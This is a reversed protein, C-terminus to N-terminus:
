SKWLSKSMLCHVMKEEGSPPAIRCDMAVSALGYSDLRSLKRKEAILDIMNLSAIDMAKNLDASRGVTVYEKDTEAAPLARPAEASESKPIMCFTGKVGDVVESIPCDWIRLMMTEAESPSKKFIDVILKTTEAKLIEIAKNLDQDYGVAIWHTPTEVRPWPLKQGKILDITLNLERFATEIATINVEGNGQAAHSDGSWLLGEKVFVPIYLTTGETMERLDMNGAFPGPPGSSFKGPEARAVGITGPFPRLPVFIGPLFEVTRKDWDLYVFRLSGQPFEKPFQGGIGPLNLNVGYSRPVIKNIKIKLVDGPEAGEISIPGTITHPTGGKPVVEAGLKSLDDITVGPVLRDRYLMATEMVVTDGPKITLVPPQASDFMGVQTTEPTAPLIYTRGSAGSNPVIRLASDVVNPAQAIAVNSVLSTLAIAVITLKLLL